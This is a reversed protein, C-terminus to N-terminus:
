DKSTVGGPVGVQMGGAPRMAQFSSFIYIHITSIHLIPSFLLFKFPFSNILFSKDDYKSSITLPCYSFAIIAVKEDKGINNCRFVALFHAQFGNKM